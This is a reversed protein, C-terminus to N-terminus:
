MLHKCIEMLDLPVPTKDTIMLLDNDKKHDHENKEKKEIISLTPFFSRLVEEHITHYIAIEDYRLIADLLHSVAIFPDNVTEDIWIIKKKRSYSKQEKTKSDVIRNIQDKIRFRQMNYDFIAHTWIAYQHDLENREVIRDNLEWIKGNVYLLAQYYIRYTQILPQIEDYLKMEKEIEHRRNSDMIRKYKLGLISLRDMLEGESLEIKM